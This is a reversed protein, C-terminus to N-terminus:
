FSSREYRNVRRVDYPSSDLRRMEEMVIVANATEHLLTWRRETRLTCTEGAPCVAVITNHATRYTRFVLVGNEILWTAPLPTYYWSLSTAGYGASYDANIEVLFGERMDSDLEANWAGVVKSESLTLLAPPRHVVLEYTAYDDAPGIRVLWRETGDPKANLRAMTARNGGEVIALKGNEVSWAGLATQSRTDHVAGGAALTVIKQQIDYDPDVSEHLPAGAFIRGSLDNPIALDSWERFLLAKSEIYPQTTTGAKPNDVTGTEVVSVLGYEATGTAQRITVTHAVYYVPYSGGALSDYWDVKRKVPATMTLVLAGDRVWTVPYRLKGNRFTGTGDMNLKVEIVNGVWNYENTFFNFSQNGTINMKPAGFLASSSRVSDAAAVQRDWKGTILQMAYWRYTGESIILSLTDTFPVMASYTAADLVTLAQIVAAQDLLKATPVLTSLNELEAQTSPLAGGALSRLQAYWATSVSSVTMAPLEATTVIGDSGGAATVANVDGALSALKILSRAGAGTATMSVMDTGSRAVVPVSFNGTADATGDFTQQGVTVVIHAGAGAGVVKGALTLEGNVQVAVSATSTGTGSGARVTYSFTDAGVFGPSPAYNILNGAISATGHAPSTVSVLSLTGGNSVTDNDLVAFQASGGARTSFADAIASPVPVPAPVSAPPAETGGGGGGCAALLAMSIILALRTPLKLLLLTM